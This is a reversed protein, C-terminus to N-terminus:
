PDRHGGDSDVGSERSRLEEMERAHDYITDMTLRGDSMQVLARARAPRPQHGRLWQYVCTTTVRLAPDSHLTSVIVPVSVDAVWQGFTTNWRPLARKCFSHSGPM